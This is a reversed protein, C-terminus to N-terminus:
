NNIILYADNLVSDSYLMCDLKQEDSLDTENLLILGEDSGLGFLFEETEFGSDAWYNILVDNEYVLHWGKDESLKISKAM